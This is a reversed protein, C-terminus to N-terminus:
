IWGSERARRVAQIRNRAGSKAVIRSLHNRITGPSLGLKTAIEPVPSGDAAITLIESERATLPNSAGLAAAVLTGDLVTEGRSLGRIGDVVRQPPSGDGLFGIKTGYRTIMAALQAARRVEVLTLVRCRDHVAMARPLDSVRLVNLDVVTVDPREAAITAEVDLLEDLEGIVEIDDQISLVYALAGRMLTGEVALLTRIM